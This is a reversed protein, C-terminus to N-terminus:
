TRACEHNYRISYCFGSCISCILILKFWQFRRISTLPDGLDWWLHPFLSEGEESSSKRIVTVRWHRVPLNDMWHSLYCINYCHAVTQRSIPSHAAASKWQKTVGHYFNTMSYMQDSWLKFSTMPHHPQATARPEKQQPITAWKRYM